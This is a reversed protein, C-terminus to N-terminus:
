QPTAGESGRQETGAKDAPLSVTKIMGERTVTVSEGPELTLADKGNSPTVVVHGERVLVITKEKLATVMFETGRVGCVAAPTRVSFKKNAWKGVLARVQAIGHDLGAAFGNDDDQDLTLSSSKGLEVVANGKALFLRTQGDAGTTVKEGPRIPLSNDTIPSGDAAFRQVTGKEPVVIGRGGRDASIAAKRVYALVQEREALSAAAKKQLERALRLEDRSVMLAERAVSVAETNNSSQAATLASQAAELDARAAQVRKEARTLSQTAQIRLDTALTVARGSWDIDGGTASLPVHIAFFILLCTLHKKSGM